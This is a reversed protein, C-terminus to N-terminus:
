ASGLPLSREPIPLKRPSHFCVPLSDPGGESPYPQIKYSADTADAHLSPTLSQSLRQVALRLSALVICVVRQVSVNAEPNSYHKIKESSYYLSPLGTFWLRAWKRPVM